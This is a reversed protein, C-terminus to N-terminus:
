IRLPFYSTVGGDSFMGPSRKTVDFATTVAGPTLGFAAMVAYWPVGCSTSLNLVPRM